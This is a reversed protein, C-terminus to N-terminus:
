YLEKIYGELLGVYKDIRGNIIEAVEKSNTEFDNIKKHIWPNNDNASEIEIWGDYRDITDRFILGDPMDFKVNIYSHHLLIDYLSTRCKDNEITLEIKMNKFKLYIHCKKIRSPVDETRVSEVYSSEFQKIKINDIIKDVYKLISVMTRVYDGKAEEVFDDNYRIGFVEKHRIMDSTVPFRDSVGLKRFYANIEAVEEILKDNFEYKLSNPDFLGTEKAIEKVAKLHQKLEEIKNDM